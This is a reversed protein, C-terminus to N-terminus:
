KSKFNLDSFHKKGLGFYQWVISRNYIGTKNLRSFDKPNKKQTHSLKGFFHFHAKSVATANQMNGNSLYKIISLLDLWFRIFIILIAKSLPLNKQIM